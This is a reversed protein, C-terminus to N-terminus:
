AVVSRSRLSGRALARLRVADAAMHVLAVRPRRQMGWVGSARWVEQAYPIAAVLPLRRRAALALALGALALDFRASRHSLFWRRYLFADRLEPMLRVMEPFWEVRVQEELYEAAGRPFVAHRVIADAAFRTRAGARRARWALWVDEGLEKSGDPKIISEFGGIREFLDRRLALNATQYLGYESAVVLFRDFPQIQGDAPPLVAGQVLEADAGADVLRRLWEEEPECDADLFVLTKGRAAACGINRAAAPGQGGATSLITLPLSSEEAAAVTEDDSGDDVLLVEFEPADRQCELCALTAPLTAEANRAPIVISVDL